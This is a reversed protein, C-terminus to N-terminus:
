DTVSTTHYYTQSRRPYQITTPHTLHLFLYLYLFRYNYAAVESRLMRHDLIRDQTRSSYILDINRENKQRMDWIM